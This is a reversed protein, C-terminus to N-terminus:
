HQNVDNLIMSTVRAEVDSKINYEDCKKWLQEIGNSCIAHKANTFESMNPKVDPLHKNWFKLNKAYVLILEDRTYVKKEESISNEGFEAVYLRQMSKKAKRMSESSIKVSTM